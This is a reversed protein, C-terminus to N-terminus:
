YFSKFYQKSYEMANNAMKKNHPLSVTNVTKNLIKQKTEKFQMHLHHIEEETLKGKAVDFWRNEMQIFLAELDNIALRLATLRKSYPLYGKIAQIFHSFAIIGGWVKAWNPFVTWSAISSVSSIAIIINIWRDVKETSELYEELYYSHTKLQDLEQWYKQQYISVEYKCIM